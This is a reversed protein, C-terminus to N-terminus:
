ELNQADCHFCLEFRKLTGSQVDKDSTVSFGTADPCAEVAATLYTQGAPDPVVFSVGVNNSEGDEIL